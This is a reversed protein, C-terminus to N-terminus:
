KRIIIENLYVLFFDFYMSEYGLYVHVAEGRTRMARGRAVRGRGRNATPIKRSKRWRAPVIDPATRAVRESPEIGYRIFCLLTKCYDRFIAVTSFGM